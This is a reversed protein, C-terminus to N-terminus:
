VVNYLFAVASTCTALRKILSKITNCCSTLLSCEFVAQESESREELDRLWLVVLQPRAQQVLEEMVFFKQLLLRLKKVQLKRKTVWQACL